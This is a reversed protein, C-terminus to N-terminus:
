SLAVSWHAKKSRIVHCHSLHNMAINRFGKNVWNCKVHCQYLAILLSISFYIKLRIITINLPTAMLREWMARDATDQKLASEVCIVRSIWVWIFLRSINRLIQERRPRNEVTAVSGSMLPFERQWLPLKTMLRLIQLYFIVSWNIYFLIARKVFSCRVCMSYSNMLLLPRRM